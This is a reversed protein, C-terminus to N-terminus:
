PLLPLEKCLHPNSVLCKRRPPQLIDVTVSAKHPPPPAPLYIFLSPQLLFLSLPLVIEVCSPLFRPQSFSAKSSLLRSRSIHTGVQRVSPCTMGLDTCTSLSKAMQHSEDISDQAKTRQPTLGCSKSYDRSCTQDASAGPPRPERSLLPQPGHNHQAAALVRSPPHPHCQHALVPEPGTSPTSRARLLARVKAPLASRRSTAWVHLSLKREMACPSFPSSDAPMTCLLM